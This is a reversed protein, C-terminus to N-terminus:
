NGQLEKIKAAFFSSKDPNILKLKELIEIAKGPKGQLIQAEAMAETLVEEEVNSKEALKVIGPDAETEALPRKSENLKKMTQLWETFSKLQKGLKDKPQVEDTIRIGQSAFYDSTHLPEFLLQEHKPKEETPQKQIAPEEAKIPVPTETPQVNNGEEEAVSTQVVEETEQNVPSIDKSDDDKSEISPADGSITEGADINVETGSHSRIELEQKVAAENEELSNDMAPSAENPEAPIEEIGPNVEAVTAVFGVEEEDTDHALYALQYPSFFLATKRAQLKWADSGQPLEQLLCYHAAAFWPQQETIQRLQAVKDGPPLQSFFQQFVSTAM